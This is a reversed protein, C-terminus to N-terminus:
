MKRIWWGTNINFLSDDLSWFGIPLLSFTILEILLFVEFLFHRFYVTLVRKQFYYVSIPLVRVIFSLMKTHLFNKKSINSIRKILKLFMFSQENQFKRSFRELWTGKVLVLSSLLVENGQSSSFRFWKGQLFIHLHFHFDLIRGSNYGTNKSWINDSCSSCVVFRMMNKKMLVQRRRPSVSSLVFLSKM